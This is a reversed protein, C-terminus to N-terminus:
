GVARNAYSRPDSKRYFNHGSREFLTRDANLISQTAGMWLLGGATLTNHFGRLLRGKAAEEFYIIM